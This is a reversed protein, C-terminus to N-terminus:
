GDSTSCIGPSPKSPRTPYLGIAIAFFAIPMAIAESSYPAVKKAFRHSGDPTDQLMRADHLIRLLDPSDQFM